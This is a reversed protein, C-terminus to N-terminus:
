RLGYVATFRLYYMKYKPVISYRMVCVACMPKEEQCVCMESVQANLKTYVAVVVVVVVVFVSLKIRYIITM